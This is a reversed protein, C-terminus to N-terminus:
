FPLDDESIIGEYAPQEVLKTPQSVTANESTNPKTGSNIIELSTIVVRAKKVAFKSDKPTYTDIQLYGLVSILSGKKLYKITLEAIGQFAVCDIFQKDSNHNNKVSLPFNAINSGDKTKATRIDNSIYGVLTITNM